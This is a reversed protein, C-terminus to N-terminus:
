KALGRLVFFVLLLSYTTSGIRGVTRAQFHSKFLATTTTGRSDRLGSTDPEQHMGPRDKWVQNETM